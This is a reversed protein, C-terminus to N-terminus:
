DVAPQLIRGASMSVADSVTESEKTIRAGPPADAVGKDTM